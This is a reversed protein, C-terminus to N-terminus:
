STVMLYPSLYFTAFVLLWVADVFHWYVAGISVRLAGGCGLRGARNWAWLAVLIVLGVAVHAMHFGTITFYLSGYADTGPGYAKNRWEVLQLAVFIAGLAIGVGLGLGLRAANGAKIGREGWGVAVSSLLLIVTNAGALMLKPPGGPPWAAHTQALLYFYSFLLYAFLSAETAIAAIMGYWGSARGDGPAVPLRWKAETADSM